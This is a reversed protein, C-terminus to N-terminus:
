RNPPLPIQAPKKFSSPVKTGMEKMDEFFRYLSMKSEDEKSKKAPSAEGRREAMEEEMSEQGQGECRERMKIENLFNVECKELQVTPSSDTTSAAASRRGLLLFSLSKAHDDSGKLQITVTVHDFLRYVQPRKDDDPEVSIQSDGAVLRGPKLTPGHKRHLYIVQM